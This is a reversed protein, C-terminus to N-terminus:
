SSQVKFIKCIKVYDQKYKTVVLEDDSLYSVSFDKEIFTHWSNILNGIEPTRVEYCALIQTNPGCLDLMTELLPEFSSIYYICNALILYDPQPMFEQCDNGWKLPRATVSGKIMSLNKEVNYQLLPVLAELDTVYADAGYHSALLGVIGTGAGLELVRKGKLPLSSDPSIPLM